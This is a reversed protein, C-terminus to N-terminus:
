MAWGKTIIEDTHRGELAILQATRGSANEDGTNRKISIETTLLAKEVSSILKELAKISAETAPLKKTTDMYMLWKLLRKRSIKLIALADRLKVPSIPSNSPEEYKCIISYAQLWECSQLKKKNIPGAKKYILFSGGFVEELKEKSITDSYLPYSNIYRFDGSESGFLMIYHDGRWPVTKSNGFFEPEVRVLNLDSYDINDPIMSLHEHETMGLEESVEQLRSLGRYDEFSFDTSRFDEFLKEASIYSGCLLADISGCHREYWPIFYKEVCSVALPSNYQTLNM